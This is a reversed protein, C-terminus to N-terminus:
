LFVIPYRPALPPNAKSRLIHEFMNNQFPIIRFHCLSALMPQDEIELCELASTLCTCHVPIWDYQSREILLSISYCPLNWSIWTAGRDTLACNEGLRKMKMKEGWDTFLSSELTLLSMMAVSTLVFRRFISLPNKRVIFWKKTDLIKLFEFSIWSAPHTNKLKKSPKGSRLFISFLLRMRQNAQLGRCGVYKNYDWIEDNAFPALPRSTEFSSYAILKRKTQEQKRQKNQQIWLLAIVDTKWDHDWLLYWFETGSWLWFQLIPVIWVM